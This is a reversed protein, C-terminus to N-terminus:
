GHCVELCARALKEAAEPQAKAAAAEAMAALSAPKDMFGRLVTTLRQLNMETQPLLVAAGDDSLWRANGTQHDDVAQPYPVLVAPKGAAALEFVTGAGARCVVLDAWNYAAAMDEIFPMVRLNEDPGRGAKEYAELTDEQKGKGTQHWVDLSNKMQEQGIVEPIVTNIAAAGLSGGLVLLRLRRSGDFHVRPRAALAAIDSRVPNGTCRVKDAAAFTGPFAELVRVSMPALLRNSLGAVANQEHIVLPRRLLWSALGGPGSVYGGMGLVCCPRIKRILQVAQWVSSLLMFPAKILALKGKGRLGSVPLRNLKIGTSELVQNEMGAPTGLWEITVGSAQLLRAISLAPFIHGGTGAAMILVTQTSM